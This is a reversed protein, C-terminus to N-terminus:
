IEPQNCARMDKSQRAEKVNSVDLLFDVSYTYVVHMKCRMGMILASDM